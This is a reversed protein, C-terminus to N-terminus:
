DLEPKARARKLMGRAVKGKIRREKSARPPKTKRRKVPAVAAQRILDFLRARVDARNRDQSRFRYGHLVLVGDRTLRRGALKMLRARVEDNLMRAHVIDFRLQVASAVKNVNQGGPGSALVFREELDAEDIAISPTVHVIPMRIEM